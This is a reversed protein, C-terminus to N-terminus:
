GITALSDAMAEVSFSGSTANVVRRGLVRGALRDDCPPVVLPDALQRPSGVAPGCRDVDTPDRRCLVRGGGRDGLEASEDRQKGGVALHRHEHEVGAVVRDPDAVVERGFSALHDAPDAVIADKV